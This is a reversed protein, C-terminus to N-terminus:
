EFFVDAAKMGDRGYGEAAELTRLKSLASAFSGSVASYGTATSIAIDEANLRQGPNAILVDLIENECKNLKPRLWERLERGSPKAEVYTAAKSAGADTITLGGALLGKSRLSSLTSAFSGSKHSYGSYFGVKAPTINSDNQIWFLAQLILREAKGLDATASFLNATRKAVNGSFASLTPSPEKRVEALRQVTEEYGPGPLELLVGTHKPEPLPIAKRLEMVLREVRDESEMLREVAKSFPGFYGDIAEQLEALKEEPFIPIEKREIVPKAANTLEVQLSHVQAKLESERVAAAQKVSALDKAEQEVVEPLDEIQSVIQSIADSAKPPRMKHREGPKPHTTSVKGGKFKLIGAPTVAPGFGYFEGARLEKLLRRDAISLGLYDAARKVDADMWTRGIFVNNTEAIADNHLKSFRQTALVGAFGRKRGLSMLDIVAQTATNDGQGKEPCLKHAEDIVILTPHWMEKPLNILAELFTKAYLRREHTKLSYLDIIASIQLEILKRPLIAASRLDTPVDGDPGILIADVKERLSAFEGELDLIIIPVYPAAQECLLRLLYSKGSGSNGEVLMRSDVLKAIELQVTGEDATGLEIKDKM